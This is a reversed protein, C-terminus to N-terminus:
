GFELFFYFGLPQPTFICYRDLPQQINGEVEPCHVFINSHIFIILFHPGINGGVESWFKHDFDWISWLEFFTKIFLTYVMISLTWLKIFGENLKNSWKFRQWILHIQQESMCSSAWSSFLWLRPVWCSTGDTMGSLSFINSSTLMELVLPLWPM